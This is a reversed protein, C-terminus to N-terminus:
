LSVTRGQLLLSGLTATVAPRRSLMGRGGEKRVSGCRLPVCWHAWNFSFMERGGQLKPDGISLLSLHQTLSEPFCRLCPGFLKWAGKIQQERKRGATQHAPRIAPTRRWRHCGWPHFGRALCTLESFCFCGLFQHGQLQWGLGPSSM